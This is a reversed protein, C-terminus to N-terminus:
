PSGFELSQGAPAGSRQPLQQMHSAGSSEVSGGPVEQYTSAAPQGQAPMQPQQYTPMHQPQAQLRPPPTQQCGAAFTCGGVIAAALTLRMM